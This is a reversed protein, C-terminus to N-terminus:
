PEYSWRELWQALPAVGPLRTRHTRNHELAVALVLASSSSDFGQMDGHGSLQLRTRAGARSVGADEGFKPSRRREMPFRM